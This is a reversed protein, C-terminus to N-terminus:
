FFIIFLVLLILLLIIFIRQNSKKKENQGFAFGGKTLLKSESRFSGRITGGHDSTNKSDSDKMNLEAKLRETREKKAEEEPNHFRYPIHFSRNRPVHFFKMGM